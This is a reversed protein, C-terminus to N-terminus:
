SRGITSGDAVRNSTADLAALFAVAAPSDAARVPRYDPRLFEVVSGAIMGVSPVLGAKGDAFWRSARVRGEGNLGMLSVTGAVWLWMLTPLILAMAALRVPYRWRRSVLHNFVEFAVDGHEVEEAAHWMLLRSMAPDAGSAVIRSQDFMWVGLVGTFHETAAILAVRWKLKRNSEDLQRGFLRSLMREMRAVFVVPDAGGAVMWRHAAGHAAAHAAEQGAFWRIRERLAPDTVLGSRLVRNFVRCFHREGAPLVLHAVNLEQTAQPEGPLWVQPTATMDFM